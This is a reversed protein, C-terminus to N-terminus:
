SVDGLLLMVLPEPDSLRVIPRRNNKQPIPGCPSAKMRWAHPGVRNWSVLKGVISWNAYTKFMAYQSNGVHNHLHESWSM